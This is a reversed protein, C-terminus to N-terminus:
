ALSNDAAIRTYSIYLLVQAGASIYYKAVTWSIYLVQCLPLYTHTYLVHGLCGHALSSTHKYAITEWPLPFGGFYRQARVSSSTKGPLLIRSFLYLHFTALKSRNVLRQCRNIGRVVLRYLHSVFLETEEESAAVNDGRGVATSVPVLFLTPILFLVSLSNFICAEFLFIVTIYHASTVSHVINKM